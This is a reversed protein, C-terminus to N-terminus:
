PKLKEFPPRKFLPAGIGKLQALSEEVNAAVCDVNRSPDEEDRGVSRVNRLVAEILLARQRDDAGSARLLQLAYALDLHVGAYLFPVMDDRKRLCYLILSRDIAYARATKLVAEFLPADLKNTQASVACPALVLGSLLAISMIKRMTGKAFHLFKM